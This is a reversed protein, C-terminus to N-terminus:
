VAEPRGYLASAANRVTANVKAEAHDHEGVNEFSGDALTKERTRQVDLNRMFQLTEFVEPYAASINTLRFLIEEELAAQDLSAPRIADARVLQSAPASA